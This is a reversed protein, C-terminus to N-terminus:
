KKPEVPDTVLDIQAETKSNIHSSVPNGQVLLDISVDGTETTQAAL